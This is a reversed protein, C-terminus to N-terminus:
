LWGRDRAAAGAQFRTTVGLEQLLASIRRQTTRASWGLARSLAEDTLGAALLSLLARTREDPQDTQDPSRRPGAVLPVAHSWEHEFLASLAQLLACSRIVFASEGGDAAIPLVALAEDALVLKVPLNARVRAQEGSSAGPLVDDQFRGPWALAERSYVTRYSLEDRRRVQAAPGGPRQPYPPRDFCRVQRQAADYLRSIRLAVAAGGSVVEIAAGDDQTAGADRFLQTLRHMETKAASLREEQRGILEGLAVDPAAAEYRPPRGHRVALGDQVLRLLVGATQTETMGCDAALRAADAGPRTMLAQYVTIERSSLGVAELM